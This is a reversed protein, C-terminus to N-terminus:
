LCARNVQYDQFDMMEESVLYALAGQCAVNVPFVMKGQCVQSVLLARRELIVLLVNVVMVAKTGRSALCGLDALYATVVKNEEKALHVLHVRHEKQHMVLYGGNM